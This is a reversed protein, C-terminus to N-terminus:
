EVIAMGAQITILMNPEDRVIKIPVEIYGRQTNDMITMDNARKNQAYSFNTSPM